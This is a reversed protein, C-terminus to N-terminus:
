PDRRGARVLGGGTGVPLAVLRRGVHVRLAGGRVGVRPGGGRVGGRTGSGGLVGRCVPRLLCGAVGGRRVVRCPLLTVWGRVIRGAALRGAVRVRVGGGLVLVDRGRRLVGPSGGRRRPPRHPAEAPGGHLSVSVVVM